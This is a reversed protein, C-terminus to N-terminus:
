GEFGEITNLEDDIFDVAKKVARARHSIKNKVESPLEAFTQDFGDPIFIPDYGFGNSGRPADAIVGKVEGRFAEILKGETAIALVCVFRANRNESGELEKLVLEMKQAHSMGEGGYRASMVGPRGDLAEVELGSDDAFAPIGAQRSAEVAKKAANEEFTKGDEVAETVDKFDDLSLVEVEQDALLTKFEEVKHKNRTAALIQFM